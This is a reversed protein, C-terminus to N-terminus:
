DGWGFVSRARNMAKSGGTKFVRVEEDGLKLLTSPLLRSVVIANGQITYNVVEPDGQTSLSFVAPLEQLDKPMVFWTFKGNDYVTIPRFDARGEIEYDFNPAGGDVPRVTPDATDKSAGFDEVPTLQVSKKPYSWKVRQYWKGDSASTIALLYSRKDTLLTASNFLGPMVPKILIHRKDGAVHSMWRDADIDSMYFGNVKEDTDVEIVTQMGERTLVPYTEDTSYRFVALKTDHFPNGKAVFPAAGQPKEPPMESALPAAMTVAPFLCVMLAAFRFPM